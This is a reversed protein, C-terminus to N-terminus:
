KWIKRWNFLVVLLLAVIVGIIFWLAPNGYQIINGVANNGVEIVEPAKAMLASSASSASEVFKEASSDAISKVSVDMSDSWLKLGVTILGSIILTSLLGKIKKSPSIIIKKDAVKYKKIRKGKVSWLFGKSEEILGAERLKKVNYNATNMPIKLNESIESESMENESILELIKMCTKNGIVEAIRGAREDGLEVSIYKENSM